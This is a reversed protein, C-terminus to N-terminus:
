ACDEKPSGLDRVTGTLAETHMCGCTVLGRSRKAGHTDRAPQTAAGAWPPAQPPATGGLAQTGRRLPPHHAPCPPPLVPRHPPASIPIHCRSQVPTSTRPDPYPRRLSPHIAYPPFSVTCPPRFCADDLVCCAFKHLPLSAPHCWHIHRSQRILALLKNCTHSIKGIGYRARGYAAAAPPAPPPPGPHPPSPASPAALPSPHPPAPAPHPDPLPASPNPSLAPAFLCNYPPHGSGRTCALSPSNVSSEYPSSPSSPCTLAQIPYARVTVVCNAHSSLWWGTALVPM